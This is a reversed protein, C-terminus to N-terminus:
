STTPSPCSRWRLAAEASIVSAQDIWLITAAKCVDVARPTVGARATDM